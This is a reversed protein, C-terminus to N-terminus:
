NSYKDNVKSGSFKEYAGRLGDTIKEDQEPTFDHGAKKSITDFAKDGYDQKQGAPAGGAAPQGGQQQAPQGDQQQGEKNGLSGAAKKIFDM